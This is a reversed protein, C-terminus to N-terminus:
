SSTLRAPTWARGWKETIKRELAVLDNHIRVVRGQMVIQGYQHALDGRNMEDHYDKV